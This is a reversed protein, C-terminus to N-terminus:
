IGNFKITIPFAREMTVLMKAAKVMHPGTKMDKLTSAFRNLPHYYASDIPKLLKTITEYEKPAKVDSRSAKIVELARKDDETLEPLDAWCGMDAMLTALKGFTTKTSKLKAYAEPQSAKLRVMFDIITRTGSGYYHVGMTMWHALTSGQKTLSAEIHAKLAPVKNDTMQQLAEASPGVIYLTEVKFKRALKFLIAAGRRWEDVAIFACKGAKATIKTVMRQEGGELAVAIGRMANPSTKPPAARHPVAKQIDKLTVVQTKLRPLAAKWWKADYETGFLFLASREIKSALMFARTMRMLRRTETPSLNPSRLPEVRTPDLFPKVTPVLFAHTPAKDGLVSLTSNTGFSWNGREDIKAEFFVQGELARVYESTLGTPVHTFTKNQLFHPTCNKVMTFFTPADPIAKVQEAIADHVGALLAAVRERLYATGEETYAIAERSSTIQVAGIPCDLLMLCKSDAPASVKNTDIPYIVGGMRIFWKGGYPLGTARHVIWDEGHFLPVGARNLDINSEVRDGFGIAMKKIAEAFLPFDKKEVSLGVRVGRPEDCPEIGLLLLTPSGDDAIGYGYHRAEAGDYCTIYYQDAKSFPALAGIGWMGAEDDSQDKDSDGLTIYTTTMTEHSMGIGFDRVFFEPKLDTPCHVYFPKDQGARLHSDGANTSLERVVAGEKDAYIGDILMRITKRSTKITTRHAELVGTTELVKTEAAIRM